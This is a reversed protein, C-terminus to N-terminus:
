RQRAQQELEAETPQPQEPQPQTQRPRKTASAEEGADAPMAVSRAEKTEERKEPVLMDQM